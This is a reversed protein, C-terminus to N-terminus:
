GSHDAPPQSSVARRATTELIERRILGAFPAIATWYLAFRRRASSSTAWVVTDTSLLCHQPDETAIAFAFLTKVWDQEDFSAWEVLSRFRRRPPRLRWPQGAGAAVALCPPDSVMLPLPGHTLLPEDMAAPRVELRRVAVLTRTLPLNRVQLRTLSEWVAAAPAAVPQAHHLHADAAGAPMELEDLLEQLM